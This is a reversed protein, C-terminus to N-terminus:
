RSLIRRAARKTENQRFACMLEEPPVHSFLKNAQCYSFVKICYFTRHFLIYFELLSLEYKQYIAWRGETILIPTPNVYGLGNLYQKVEKWELMHCFGICSELDDDPLAAIVRIVKNPNNVRLSRGIAQNVREHRVHNPSLLCVNEINNFNFGECGGEYSYVLIPNNERPAASFKKYANSSKHFFIKNSPFLEQFSKESNYVPPFMKSTFFLLTYGTLPPLSGCIDNLRSTITTFDGIANLPYFTYEITYTPTYEALSNDRPKLVEVESRQFGRNPNDLPIRYGGASLGIYRYGLRNADILIINAREGKQCEDVIICEPKFNDVITNKWTQPSIIVIRPKALSEDCGYTIWWERHKPYNSRLIFVQSELSSNMVTKGYMRQIESVWQNILFPPILIIVRQFKMAIALGLTTKGFSLPAEMICHNKSRLVRTFLDQQTTTLRRNGVTWLSKIIRHFTKCVLMISKYEYPSLFLM